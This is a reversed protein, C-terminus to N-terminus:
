AFEVMNDIPINTQYYKEFHSISSFIHKSDDKWCHNNYPSRTFSINEVYKEVIHAANGVASILNLHEFSNPNKINKFSGNLVSTMERAIGIGRFEPKVYIGVFGLMSFSKKMKNHTFKITNGKLYNYHEFILIGIATKGNYTLIVSFSSIKISENHWGYPVVEESCDEIDTFYKFRSSSYSSEYLSNEKILRALELININPIYEFSLSM